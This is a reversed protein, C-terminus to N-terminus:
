SKKKTNPIIFAPSELPFIHPEEDDGGWQTTTAQLFFWCFRGDQFREVRIWINPTTYKTIPSTCKTYVPPTNQMQILLTDSHFFHKNQQTNPIKLSEQLFITCLPMKLLNSLAFSQYTGGEQLINLPHPSQLFKWNFLFLWSDAEGDLNAVLKCFRPFINHLLHVKCIAAKLTSPVM